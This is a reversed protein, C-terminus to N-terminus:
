IIDFNYVHKFHHFYFKKGAWDYISAKGGFSGSNLNRLIWVVIFLLAHLCVHRNGLLVLHCASVSLDLSASLWSAQDLQHTELGILLGTKLLLLSADSTWSGWTTKQGRCVDHTYMYACVGHVYMCVCVGHAYMCAHWTCICIHMHAYRTLWMDGRFM